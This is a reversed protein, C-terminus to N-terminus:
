NHFTYFKDSAKGEGHEALHYHLDDEERLDKKYEEINLYSILNEKAETTKFVDQNIYVDISANFVKEADEHTLIDINYAEAEIISVGRGHLHESGLVGIFKEEEFWEEIDYNDALFKSVEKADYPINFDSLEDELAQTYNM